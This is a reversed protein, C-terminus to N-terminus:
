LETKHTSVPEPPPIPASYYKDYIDDWFLIRQQVLPGRLKLSEDISMHPGGNAQTPPWNPFDAEDPVPKGTAIFSAWIKRMMKKVSKYDKSLTEENLNEFSGGDVVGWTQACHDAGRVTSYPILKASEDVFSYEYLYVNNNGSEVQYRVSRLAPYAFVIDTYYDIYRFITENSIPKSGFYFTKVKRAVEKKEAESKFHLEDPLFNSFNVNMEDKWADFTFTRFLGEMEAFGYLMPLKQQRGNKLISYPSDDLFREEGLDREVCPGFLMTTSKFAMLNVSHLIDRPVMKYFQELVYIDNSSDTFNLMEAYKWANEVPDIQVSFGAINSGSEPVVKHFLGRTMPSLILLDVSSSGASCGIITVDDPNGGFSAINKKVWRLLAVQDKMGANGPVDPTGLCLFGNPGLRYNFNVVVMPKAKILNKSTTFEGHGIQYGGGHVYVVVPLNEQQTDPVYVNAILCDDLTIANPIVVGPFEMQPCIINKNVAEFPETWTPPPLPAKYKHMGTPATAYPIGYFMFVDDGPEKYGRVPGQEINVLKSEKGYSAGVLTLVFLSWLM